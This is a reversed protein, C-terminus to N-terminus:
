GRRGMFGNVSNTVGSCAGGAVNALADEDLDGDIRDAFASRAEEDTIPNGIQKSFEVLAEPTKVRSLQEILSQDKDVFEFFKKLAM